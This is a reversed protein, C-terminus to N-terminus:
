KSGELSCPHETSNIISEIYSDKVYVVPNEKTSGSNINPYLKDPSEPFYFYSHYSVGDVDPSFRAAYETTTLYACAVQKWKQSPMEYVEKVESDGYNACLAPPYIDFHTLKGASDIKYGYIVACRYESEASVLASMLIGCVLIVININFAYM